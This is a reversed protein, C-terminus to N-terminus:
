KKKSSRKRFPLSLVLGVVNWHLILGIMQALDKPGVYMISDWEGLLKGDLRLQDGEKKISKVSMLVKGEDSYITAVRNKESAAM